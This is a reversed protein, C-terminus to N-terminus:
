FLGCARAGKEVAFLIMMLPQNSLGNILIVLNNNM